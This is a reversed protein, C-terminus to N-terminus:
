SNNEYKHVAFCDRCLSLAPDCSCYTRIRAACGPGRCALQHYATAVTARRGGGLYKGEYLALNQLVHERDTTSSGRGRKSPADPVGRSIQRAHEELKYFDNEILQESLLRRFDLLSLRQDGSADLKRNFVLLANVESIAMLALFQRAAWDNIGATMELSLSGQRLNNNDDVAHRAM